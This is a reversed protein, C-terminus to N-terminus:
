RLCWPARAKYSPRSERQRRFTLVMGAFDDRKQWVLAGTPCYKVCRPLERCNPYPDVDCSVLPTNLGKEEQHVVRVNAELPNFYGNMQFCCIMECMRCGNCLSDEVFIRKKEVDPTM